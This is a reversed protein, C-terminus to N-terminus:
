DTYQLKRGAKKAFIARHAEIPASARLLVWSFGLVCAVNLVIWTTLNLYKDAGLVYLTSLVVVHSIYVAYSLDGVMKEGVLFKGYRFMQPLAGAFGFYFLLNWGNGNNWELGPIHRYFIMVLLSSIALIAGANRDLSSRARFALMGLLFLYFEAPFFSRYWPNANHWMAIYLTLAFSAAALVIFIWTRRGVLFPVCLYFHFELALTWAPQIPSYSILLAGSHCVTDKAISIGKSDLCVFLGSDLGIFFLNGATWALWGAPTHIGHWFSFDIFTPITWSRLSLAVLVACLITLWYVPLLRWARSLYFDAAGRYKSFAM